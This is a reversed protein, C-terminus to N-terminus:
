SKTGHRVFSVLKVLFYVLGSCMLFIALPILLSFFYANRLTSSLKRKEFEVAENLGLFKKRIKEDAFRFNGEALCSLNWHNVDDAHPSLRCPGGDRFDAGIHRNISVIKDIGAGNIGKQHFAGDRYEMEPTGTTVIRAHIGESLRAGNWLVVGGNQFESMSKENKSTQISTCIFQEVSEECSIMQHHSFLFEGDAIWWGLGLLPLLVILLLRKYQAKNM